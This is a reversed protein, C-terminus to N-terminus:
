HAVYCPHMNAESAEVSILRELQARSLAGQVITRGVILAPTGNLNLYNALAFSQRLARMTEEAEMDRLFRDRDMQFQRMMDEIYAPTPVFRSRMLRKHFDMYKGQNHAALAARSALRSSAGLIPWEKYIVRLGYKKQVKDIIDSLTRCYPCRYDFFEVLVVDADKPGTELSLKDQYLATCFKRPLDSDSSLETPHGGTENISVLVASRNASPEGLVLDRFGAPSSRERFELEESTAGFLVYGAAVAILPVLFILAPKTM